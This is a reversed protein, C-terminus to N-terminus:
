NTLAYEFVLYLDIGKTDYVCLSGSKQMEDIYGDVYKGDHDNGSFYFRGDLYSKKLEIYFTKPVVEKDERWSVENDSLYYIFLLDEKLEIIYKCQSELNFIDDKFKKVKGDKQEIVLSPLAKYRKGHAAMCVILLILLLCSKKNM